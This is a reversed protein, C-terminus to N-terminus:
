KLKYLSYNAGYIVDLKKNDINEALDYSTLTNAYYHIVSQQSRLFIKKQDFKIHDFLFNKKVYSKIKNQFIRDSLYFSRSEEIVVYQFDKKIYDFFLKLNDIPFFTYNFYTIDDKLTSNDIIINENDEISQVKKKINKLFKKSKESKKILNNEYLEIYFLNQKLSEQFNLDVLYLIKSRDKEINKNFDFFSHNKALTINVKNNEKINEYIFYFNFFLLLFISLYKFNKKYLENFVIATLILIISIIGAFYRLQPTLAGSLAFLFIPAFILLIIILFEKKYKTDKNLFFIPTVGVLLLINKDAFYITKFSISVSSILSKLFFGIRNEELKELNDVYTMHDLPGMSVFFSNIFPGFIIFISIFILLYSIKSFRFKEYHLLFVAYISIFAPWYNIGWAISALLGFLYYSKINFKEIKLLYKIFIYSQILYILLNCSNKSMITSVNLTVLSTAFTVLLVSYIFFNIKLKKFILYLFFISFSTITLSALRGYFLFLEPNFYIKSKIQDPTLSNILLENIFISKLILILNILSGYLPNYNYEFYGTLLSLSSLTNQQFEIEDLNVFFPLGYSIGDFRYIFFIIILFIIFLKDLRKYISKKSM